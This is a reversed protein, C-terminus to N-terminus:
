FYGYLWKNTNGDLCEGEAGNGGLSREYFDYNGSTDFYQSNGTELDRSDRDSLECNERDGEYGGSQPTDRFVVLKKFVM